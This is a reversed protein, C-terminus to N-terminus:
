ALGAAARGLIPREGVQLAGAQRQHRAIISDRAPRARAATFDVEDHAVAVARQDEDFHTRPGIRAM